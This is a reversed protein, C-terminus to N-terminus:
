TRHAIQRAPVGAWVTRPPIQTDKPVVAGAAVIAEDGITVGPMIIANMGIDVRHGITVPRIVLQGRESTHCVVTADGGIMTFDGITLLNCDAIINSNIQVGKGIHAGCLRYFWPHLPTARIFNMLTYRYVLIYFNYIAWRISPLSAIPFTGPTVRLRLLRIMAVVLLGLGFISAVFAAAGAIGFCLAESLRLHVDLASYIGNFLLHAATLWIVIIGFLQSYMGITTGFYVLRPHRGIATALSM